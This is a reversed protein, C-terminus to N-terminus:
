VTVLKGKEFHSRETRSGRVDTAADSLQDGVTASGSADLASYTGSSTTPLLRGTTTSNSATQQHRTVEGLEGDFPDTITEVSIVRARITVQVTDQQSGPVPLPALAFGEESAMRSFEANRASASLKNELETRHARVGDPGLLNKDALEAAVVDL